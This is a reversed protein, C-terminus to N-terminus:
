ACSHATIGAPVSPKSLASTVAPPTSVLSSDAFVISLRLTGPRNKMPSTTSTVPWRPPKLKWHAQDEPAAAPRASHLNASIPPTVRPERLLGTAVAAFRHRIRMAECHLTSRSSVHLLSRLNSPVRHGDLVPRRPFM